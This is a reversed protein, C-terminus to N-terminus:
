FSKQAFNRYQSPPFGISKKFVMSFYYPTSFGLRFSIESITLDSEKLWQCARFMKRETFYQWLTKDTCRKFERALHFKTVHLYEAILDLSLRDELHTELYDKCSQILKNEIKSPFAFHEYVRCLFFNLHGDASIAQQYTVPASMLSIIKQFVEELDPQVGISIQTESIEKKLFGSLDEFHAWYITWPNGPISGYFHPTNKPILLLTGPRVDISTGAIGARGNGEICYILINQSIGSREIFHDRAKRYYGCLNIHCSIPSISSKKLPNTLNVYVPEM